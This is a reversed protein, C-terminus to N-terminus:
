NLKDLQKLILAEAADLAASLGEVKPGGGRALTKEGGGKGDVLPLCGKLMERMDLELNHSCSFALAAKGGETGGLLAICAPLERLKGALLGLEGADRDPFPAKV